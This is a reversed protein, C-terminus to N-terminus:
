EMQVQNFKIPKRGPENILANHVETQSLEAENVQLEAGSISSRENSGNILADNSKM